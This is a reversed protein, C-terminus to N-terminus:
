SVGTIQQYRGFKLAAYIRWSQTKLMTAGTYLPRTHLRQNICTEQCHCKAGAVAIHQQPQYIALPPAIGLGGSRQRVVAGVDGQQSQIAACFCIDIGSGVGPSATSSEPYMTAFHKVYLSDHTHTM